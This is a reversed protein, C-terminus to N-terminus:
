KNRGGLWEKLEPLKRDKESLTVSKLVFGPLDLDPDFLNIGGDSEEHYLTTCKYYVVCDTLAIFAHATGPPLYMAKGGSLVECHSKGYTPSDPRIDLCIDLIRGSLARVLKGQPNERQIHLGRAVGKKSSSFNDQPWHTPIGVERFDEEQWCEAFVGRIDEYLRTTIVRCGGVPTAECTFREPPKGLETMRSSTGTPEPVINGHNKAM